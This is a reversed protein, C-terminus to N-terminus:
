ARELISVRGTGGDIEIHDGDRIDSTATKVNVVAPIGLDRAVITAHSLVGGVDTVVGAAVLFLPTWATDTMHAVLIDGEALDTYPDELLRARGTVVGPSGGIGALEDQHRSDATREVTRLSGNSWEEVEIAAAQEYEAARRDLEEIAPLQGGHARAELEGVTCMEFRSGELDDRWRERLTLLVRRLANTARMCSDKTREARAMASRAAAVLPRAVRGPDIHPPEAAPPPRDRIQALLKVVDDPRQEWMLNTPDFEGVGRHGFESIFSDLVIRLESAGPVDSGSLSAFDGTAVLAALDSGAPVTRAIEALRRSPKASELGPIASVYRLSEAPDIGARTLAASAQELLPSTLARATVHTGLLQGFLAMGARLDRVLAADSRDHVDHLGDTFEDVDARDRDVRRGMGALTRGMSSPARLRYRRDDPHAVHPPLGTSAADGFYQLDIADASTGPLRDASVRLATLNLHVRACM